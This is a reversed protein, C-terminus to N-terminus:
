RIQEQLDPFLRDIESEIFVIVRRERETELLDGVVQNGPAFADTTFRIRHRFTVPIDFDYDGM